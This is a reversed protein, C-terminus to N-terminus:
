RCTGSLRRASLFLGCICLIGYILWVASMSLWRGVFYSMIPGISISLPVSMALQFSLTRSRFRLVDLLWGLAYGPLFGVLSFLCFSVFIAVCDSIMFNHAPM